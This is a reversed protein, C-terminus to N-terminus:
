LGCPSSKDLGGKTPAQNMLGVKYPNSKDFGFKKNRYTSSKDLVGLYETPAQNM